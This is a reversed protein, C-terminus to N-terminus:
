LHARPHCAGLFLAPQNTEDEKRPIYCTILHALLKDGDHAKDERFSVVINENPFDLRLKATWLKELTRGLCVVQSRAPENEARLFWELIHRHNMVMQVATKNGNLARLWIRYSEMEIDSFFVCGDHLQFKPCLLTARVEARDAVSRLWTAIDPFDSHNCHIKKPPPRTM